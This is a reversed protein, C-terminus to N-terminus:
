AVGAKRAIVLRWVVIGILIVAGVQLIPQDAIAGFLAALGAGIGSLGGPDKLITDVASPEKPAQVDVPASSVFEGRAGLGAEAARRNVLGQMVKGDNKNWRSLQAPVAAYDGANLKRLLTSNSFATDGVNYTFSVLAGHQFDTLQVNVLREIVGSVRDLEALLWQTAEAETITEGLQVPKGSRRTQGYGITVPKGNVSGPDPYANARFGEWRKIHEIVEANLQRAM